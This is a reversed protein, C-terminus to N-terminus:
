ASRNRLLGGKTISKKLVDKGALVGHGIDSYYVQISSPKQAVPKCTDAVLEHYCHTTNRSGDGLGSSSGDLTDLEQDLILYTKM